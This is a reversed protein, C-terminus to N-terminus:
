RPDPRGGLHGGRLRPLLRHSTPRPATATPCSRSASPSSCSSAASRASRAPSASSRVRSAATRTPPAPAAQSRSAHFVAPIMKYVSGNGIGHARVTRHLVRRAAPHVGVTAARLVVLSAVAMALFNWFTVTSGRFRDALWPTGSSRTTRTGTTSGAATAVSCCRTATPQLPCPVPPLVAPDARERSSWRPRPPRAGATGASAMSTSKRGPRGGSSTRDGEGWPGRAGTHSGPCGAAIM